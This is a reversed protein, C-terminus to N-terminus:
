IVCIVNRRRCEVWLLMWAVRIKQEAVTVKMKREKLFQSWEKGKSFHAMIVLAQDEESLRRFVVGFDDLRDDGKNPGTARELCVGEAIRIFGKTKHLAWRYTLDPFRGSAKGDTRQQERVCWKEFVKELEAFSVYRM